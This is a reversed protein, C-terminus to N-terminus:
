AKKPRRSVIPWEANASIREEVTKPKLKVTRGAKTTFTRGPTKYTIVACCPSVSKVRVRKGNCDLIDGARLRPYEIVTAFPRDKM